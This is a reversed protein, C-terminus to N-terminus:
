EKSQLSRWARGDRALLEDAKAPGSSGAPYGHVPLAGGETHSRPYHRLLDDVTRLGLVEDLPDAVKAGVVCDLRDSLSVM